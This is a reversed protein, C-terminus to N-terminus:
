RSLETKASTASTTEWTNRAYCGTTYVPLAAHTFPPPSYYFPTTPLLPLFIGIIGLALSLTGLLIYLSKM